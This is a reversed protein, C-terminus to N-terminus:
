GPIILKKMFISLNIIALNQKRGRMRPNDIEEDRLSVYHHEKRLKRGRMRPNDIEEQKEKKNAMLSHLKRGRM